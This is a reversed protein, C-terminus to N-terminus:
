LDKNIWGTYVTNANIEVCRRTNEASEFWKEEKISLRMKYVCGLKRKTSTDYINIGFNGSSTQRLKALTEHMKHLWSSIPFNRCSSQDSPLIYRIRTPIDKVSNDLSPGRQVKKGTNVPSHWANRFLMKFQKEKSNKKQKKNKKIKNNCRLKMAFIADAIHVRLHVYAIDRTYGANM